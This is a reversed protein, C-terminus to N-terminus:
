YKGIATDALLPKNKILSVIVTCLLCCTLVAALLILVSCLVITLNHSNIYM